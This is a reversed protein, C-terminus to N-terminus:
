CTSRDYAARMWGAHRAMEEDVSHQGTAIVDAFLPLADRERWQKTLFATRKRSTEDYATPKAWKRLCM